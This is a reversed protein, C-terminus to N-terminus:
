HEWNELVCYLSRYKKISVSIYFISLFILGLPDDLAAVYIITNKIPLHCNKKTKKPGCGLCISTGPSPASDSSYDSAWVVAM